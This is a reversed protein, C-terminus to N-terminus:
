RRRGRPIADLLRRTYEHTPHEFVEAASAAEVVRGGHMVVVRDAIARVVALDHSIFVYTLGLERQLEDLLRLIQDQVVVDLASVAEDCVVLEPGLALARAIAVRQRQGGSLEAPFRDATESPLAVRDLLERVRGARTRRDGVRHVRLPEEIIRQVSYTPDLSGYPDQFVPQVRRRFPAQRQLTTLDTGDFMVTGSDPSLLGSVMRAVTSKGSGSEGVIATTTGRAVTFSVDDAATVEVVARRRGIRSGRRRFVKRVGDVVLLPPAASAPAAARPRARASALSPAAAVLRRTYADRPDTLLREAPGAEVIRGRHMVVVHEAREAAVGLDHTVLLVATGLERTLGSLHDLVRRQVTVDLASTPEDAILLRPRAALGIAILVRQRMGGSFEHPYHGSRDAADELGAEELLEDARRRAARGSAVGNAMLAERVQFGVPWVPNLNTAPDQPVFGIGSGRIRVLQRASAGVLDAGDFRIRGGTIRGGTPLLGLIAHALTSKGSGSEGVVAVTQGPHVTLGAERVARVATPGSGFAVDLADVELLPATM